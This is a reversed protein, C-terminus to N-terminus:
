NRGPSHSAMSLKLHIVSKIHHLIYVMISVLSKNQEIVHGEIDDEEEMEDELCGVVL